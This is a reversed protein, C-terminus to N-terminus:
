DFAKEVMRGVSLSTVGLEEEGHWCYAGLSSDTGLYGLLEPHRVTFEVKIGSRGKGLKSRRLFAVLVM